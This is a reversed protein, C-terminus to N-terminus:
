AGERPRYCRYSGIKHLVLEGRETLARLVPSVQAEYLDLARTIDCTNPGPLRITGGGHVAERGPQAALRRVTALVDAESALKVARPAARPARGAKPRPPQLPLHAVEGGNRNHHVALSYLGVMRSHSM